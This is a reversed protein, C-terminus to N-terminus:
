RGRSFHDGSERREGWRLAVELEGVGDIEAATDFILQRLRLLRRRMAPSYGDFVAAIDPKSMPNVAKRRENGSVEARLTSVLVRDDEGRRAVVELQGDGHGHGHEADV